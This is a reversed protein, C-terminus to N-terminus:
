GAEPPGARGPSVTVLLVSVRLVDKRYVTLAAPM